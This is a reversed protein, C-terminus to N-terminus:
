RQGMLYARQALEFLREVDHMAVAVAVSMASLLGSLVIIRWLELRPAPSRLAAVRTTVDSGAASLVAMPPAHETSIAALTLADAVTGRHCLLAADEDAWRECSLEQAAALRALLPNVSVALATLSQHLHHRHRLHAQEHALLARRQGADLSRLLATTAVIRGPRGPIAFASKGATDLVTLETSTHPLARALRYADRVATLRRTGTRLFCAAFVVVAVVAIGGAPAALHEHARLFDESWHGREVLVPTRAAFVFALLALSASSGAAALLGGCSLLWTACAPPLRRALLPALVGFLGSLVLPLYVWLSM